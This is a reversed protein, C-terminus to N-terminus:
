NMGVVDQTLLVSMTGLKSNLFAEFVSVDPDQSPLLTVLNPVNEGIPPNNVKPLKKL